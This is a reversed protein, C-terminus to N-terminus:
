FDLRVWLTWQPAHWRPFFRPRIRAYWIKHYGYLLLLQFGGFLLMRLRSMTRRAVVRVRSVAHERAGLRVKYDYHALGGEIRTKGERIAAEIMTVIGTPGLSFREWHPGVSRAPLEWVYSEGFAFIYQRCIIEGDALIRLFRVRGFPALSKVLAENYAGAEPWSGFHGPKGEFKWQAAHQAAFQAYEAEVEPSNQLVEVRVEHEKRLTRLEYKRRNKRENKSLSEFYEEMSRPLWFVSHVGDLVAHAPGVLHTKAASAGKLKVSSEHLESVPGFSLLDCRDQEFLQDLIHKFMAEAWAADMPPDFVKPPINAGVLRVVKFQFPWFGLTDIYLPLIGVVKEGVSFVFIRLAKGAGYFKWWTRCWDFSMYVSGGLRITAEDWVTRLGDLGDFSRELECRLGPPSVEQPALKEGPLTAIRPSSTVATDQDSM